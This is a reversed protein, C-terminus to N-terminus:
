AVGRPLSPTKPRVSLREVSRNIGFFRGEDESEGDGFGRRLVELCASVASRTGAVPARTGDRRLGARAAEVLDVGSGFAGAAGPFGLVFGALDGAEEAEPSEAEGAAGGARRAAALGTLFVAFAGFAVAFDVGTGSPAGPEGSSM